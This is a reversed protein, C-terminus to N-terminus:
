NRRKENRPHSKLIAIFRLVHIAVEQAEGRTLCNPDNGLACVRRGKLEGPMLVDVGSRIRYADNRINPFERSSGPQMWWDTIVLGDYGWEKRLIGMVLDYHYHGWVGNIQNYSTMICMPRAEKVIMRFGKLYIERLARQSLRSDHHQRNTEQNNCAFHKPCAASGNKQIGRVVAAGIKGTLLPDESFYEFNRGCLPDRHINVGPALLMDSGRIAMEKGLLEYLHCVADPDFTSALATGCPLLSCTNKLRIGSPGDTTIVPPIGRAKLSATVGGFAGANGLAGERYNMKGAGRSIEDLELDSLQSVFSEITCSGNLVDQFEYQEGRRLLEPPLSRLIENRLDKKAEAVPEWSLVGDSNHMRLFGTGPRVASRETLREVVHVHTIEFSLKRGSNRPDTGVCVHYIGAELLYCNPYGTRGDDDFSAFDALEFEMNLTQEEGPQLLRSKAFCTLVKSPKGLLGCPCELYTQVVQKGPFTGTNIVSATVKIHNDFRDVCSDISFSSYSLGYGFPYLVKEPAFTEFYRYGVYIDEAYENYKRGGFHGSSPYDTYNRAITDTLRGSPNVTGTLLDALAYGSEMGGQWAYVIAGIRDGFQETWGMDIVNGCDMIVAVRRFSATVMRLMSMERDTLYYSGKKLVNERSEGAARGIVVLALDSEAAAAEVMQQKLPMEPHSMPWHGWFGEDPVNKPDTCWERYTEALTQCLPVAHERLGDMLTSRYPAIVDGGSGYGVTFYDVACRGFVAVRDTCRIPLTWNENKLLVIGDAAVQRAVRSIEPVVLDGDMACQNLNQELGTSDFKQIFSRVCRNFLRNM